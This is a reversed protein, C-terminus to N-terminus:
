ESIRYGDKDIWIRSLPGDHAQWGGTIWDDETNSRPPPTKRAPVVPKALPSLSNSTQRSSDSTPSSPVASLSPPSSSQFRQDPAAMRHIRDHPTPPLLLLSPRLRQHAIIKFGQGFGGFRHSDRIKDCSKDPGSRPIAFLNTPSPHHVARHYIPCRSPFSRSALGFTHPTVLYM